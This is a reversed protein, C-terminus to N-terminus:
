KLDEETINFFEKIWDIVEKWAGCQVSIVNKPTKYNSIRKELEKIWKIAEQRIKEKFKIVQHAEREVNNIESVDYNGLEIELDKL